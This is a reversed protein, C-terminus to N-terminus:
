GTSNLLTYVALGFDHGTLPHPFDWDPGSIVNYVFDDDIIRDRVQVDTGHAVYLTADGANSEGHQGTNHSQGGPAIVGSITITKATARNGRADTVGRKVTLLKAIM